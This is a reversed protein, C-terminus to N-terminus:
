PARGLDMEYGGADNEVRIVADEGPALAFTRACRFRLTTDDSSLVDCPVGNVSVRAGRMNVGLLTVSDDTDALRPSDCAAVLVAVVLGFYHSPMPGGSM